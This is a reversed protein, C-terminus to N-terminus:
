DEKKAKLCCCEKWEIYFACEVEKCYSFQSDRNVSAITLLPCIKKMEDGKYNRVM